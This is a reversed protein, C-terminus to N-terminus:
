PAWAPLLLLLNRLKKWPPTYNKKKGWSPSTLIFRISKERKKDATRWWWPCVPQNTAQWRPWLFLYFVRSGRPVPLRFGASVVCVCPRTSTYVVCVCVCFSLSYRMHVSTHRECLDTASWFTGGSFFALALSSKSQYSLAAGRFCVRLFVVWVHSHKNPAVLLLLLFPPQNDSGIERGGLFFTVWFVMGKNWRRKGIRQCKFGMFFSLFLRLFKEHIKPKLRSIPALPLFVFEFSVTPWTWHIWYYYRTTPTHRIHFINM